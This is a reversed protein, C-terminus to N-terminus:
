TASSTGTSGSGGFLVSVARASQAALTGGGVAPPSAAPAMQTWRAGDWEWTDRLNGPGSDTSGGFLVGVGRASDYDMVSFVRPSPNPTAAVQKWDLPSTTVGRLAWTDGLQPHYAINAAGGFIVLEARNPDHPIAAQLRRNIHLNTALQQREGGGYKRTHNLLVTGPAGGFLGPLHRVSDDTMATWLRAPPTHPPLKHIWTSGDWEWTDSLMGNFNYGGFLVSVGRASDYVMPALYRGSPGTVQLQTWSTGDYQGTDSLYASSGGFLVTKRHMLDYTM